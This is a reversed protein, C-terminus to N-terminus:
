QLFGVNNGGKQPLSTPAKHSTPERKQTAVRDQMGPAHVAVGARRGQRQSKQGRAVQESGHPPLKPQLSMVLREKESYRRLTSTMEYIAPMQNLVQPARRSLDISPSSNNSIEAPTTHMVYAAIV